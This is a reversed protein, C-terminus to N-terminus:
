KTFVMLCPPAKYNMTLIWPSAHPTKMKNSWFTLTPLHCLDLTLIKSAKYCVSLDHTLCSYLFPEVTVFIEDLFQARVRCLGQKEVTIHIVLWIICVKIGNRDRDVVSVDSLKYSPKSITSGSSQLTEVVFM